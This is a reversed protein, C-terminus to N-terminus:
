KKERSEGSLIRKNVRKRKWEDKRKRERRGEREIECVIYRQM